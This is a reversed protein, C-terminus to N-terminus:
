FKLNAGVNFIQQQPYFQASESQGEPDFDKVKSFTALNFGSVYVRAGKLGLKGTPINYGLEVNKIRFFSTNYLWFDNKNLSGNISSSTRVDVKPYTGNPNSPSWRNAAWSNFYNGVEGAETLVYQVSRAQGQLLITLDFNKFTGGVTFGYIIQPVNTLSQRTQDLGNIVGDNNVDKYILDGPVNGTLKPYKTLAEADKFIGQAQYLLTAGIPYGEKKQYAPAGAADDMFIVKSKNYTLNGGLNLHMDGVSFNYALQAEVGANQIKGINEDPVIRAPFDKEGARYENVIGSVMPLSGTRPTLLDTRLEHFYDLELTFHQLIRTEIGIDLKKATEWTINPNAIQYIGFTPVPSGNLVYNAQRLNFTSLYQFAPVRDNGLLGYSARLKLNNIANVHFWSEESIRWGTSISPYFGSQHGKMFRSSQDYRFQVEAFYKSSYDFSFRGFYNRRTFRESNGSNTREEPASGGLDIEPITTSLFGRRFTEFWNAQQMNREYALFSKFFLAGLTTEYNLSINATSLIDNRQRQTLEATLPGRSVPDFTAPTTSNNVTYVTWPTKFMKRSEFIRDYAYFGKLSLGKIAPIKYNFNLLTNVVTRPQQDSGAKNTAIVVPNLGAEIGPSPLGGPYYVPLTPYTRFASRFISGASETPYVRDENRGAIDVGVKLNETLNIDLNTRVNFQEYKLNTNKYIGEQHRRGLSVFYQVEKGGGNVSLNQQDQLSYSKMVAGIWDTNAYNVPDSGNGFKQIEEQSYIQNLGGSPSRYYQIENLIAAYTPADAMKPLRTPKVLGQNYSFNFAPGTSATGRKTTILIVGNAAQAGYIAASADKLVSISEIDNPDLRELGGLRNAVGDVVILPSNDGTTSQGRILLRAGDSGPEGTSTNAVVGSVRGAFSSSLNPQPSKVLEKGKVSTIASTLSEKKTEGYGVVIVESLTEIDSDLKVNLQTQANIPVEQSKYGIFSFVLVGNLDAVSLSFKGDKDTTTGISTGKVIISVGPLGVEDEKSAVVGQVVNQQAILHTIKLQCVAAMLILTLLKGNKLLKRIM